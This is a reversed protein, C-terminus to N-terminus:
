DDSTLISGSVPLCSQGETQRIFKKMRQMAGSLKTDTRDVGAELDELMRNFNILVQGLFLRLIRM